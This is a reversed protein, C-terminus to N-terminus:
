APAEEQGAEGRRERGRREFEDYMEQAESGVLALVEARMEMQAAFGEDDLDYHSGVGLVEGFSALDGAECGNLGWEVVLYDVLRAREKSAETAM